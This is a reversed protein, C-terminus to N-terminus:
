LGKDLSWGGWRDTVHTVLRNVNPPPPAASGQAQMATWDTEQGRGGGAGCAGDRAVVQQQVAVGEEAVGALAAEPGVVVAQRHQLPLGVAAAQQLSGGGTGGEGAGTAGQRREINLQFLDVGFKSAFLGSISLANAENARRWRANLQTAYGAM